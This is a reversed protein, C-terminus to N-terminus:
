LIKLIPNSAGIGWTTSEGLCFIKYGAETNIPPPYIRNYAFGALRLSLELCVILFVIGWILLSARGIFSYRNGAEAVAGFRREKSFM